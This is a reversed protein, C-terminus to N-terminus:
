ITQKCFISWIIQKQSEYQFTNRQKTKGTQKIKNASKGDMVMKKDNETM